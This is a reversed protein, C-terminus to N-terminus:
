GCATNSRCPAGGALPNQESSMEVESSSSTAEAHAAAETRDEIASLLASFQTLQHSIRESKAPVRPFHHVTRMANLFAAPSRERLARLRLVLDRIQRQESVALDKIALNM